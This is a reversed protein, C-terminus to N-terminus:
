GTEEEIQDPAPTVDIAEPRAYSVVQVTVNGNQEVEQRDAYGYNSALNLAAIRSDYCGVIAKEINDAEVRRRAHAIIHFFEEKRGYNIITKRDVELAVALGAMTYPTPTPVKVIEGKQVVQKTIIKADCAAFYADIADQLAEPTSYLPPRGIPNKKQTTMHDVKGTATNM